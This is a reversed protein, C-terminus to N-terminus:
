SHFFIFIFVRVICMNCKYTINVWVKNDCAVFKADRYIYNLTYPFTLQIYGVRIAGVYMYVCTCTRCVYLTVFAVVVVYCM